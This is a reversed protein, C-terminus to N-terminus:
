ADENETDAQVGHTTIIGIEIAHRITSKIAQPEITEHWDRWLQRRRKYEASGKWEHYSAFGLEKGQDAGIFPPQDALPPSNGPDPLCRVDFVGDTGHANDDQGDDHVAFWYTRPGEHLDDNRYVHYIEVGKHEMFLEAPRSETVYPM